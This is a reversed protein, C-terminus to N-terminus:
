RDSIGPISPSGEWTAPTAWPLDGLDEDTSGPTHACGLIGLVIATGGAFGLWRRFLEPANENSAM